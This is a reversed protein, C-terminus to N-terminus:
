NAAAKNAAKVANEWGKEATQQGSQVKTLEAEVATRVVGSKKGLYQPQLDEATKAFIVGTNQGSFFDSKFDLFSQDKWIAPQAPLNGVKQFIALAQEPATAWNIFDWAAQVNKGQKPITWFSGGWNGGDGPIDAVAWKGKTAPAQGQIYGQMWAPCALTAFKGNKFGANWEASWAALGASIGSAIVKTSQDWAVKPGGDMQLTESTDFYGVPQQGLVPNMINVASDVFFKGKEAKEMYKQGVTIFDDWSAGWESSLQDPATSLGAKEFLDTRYCMALGGVDTGLGIQTKGDASLSQAWKWKLFDNQRSAGNYPADLLNVFKDAQERFQVIFGEDIAAVDPAGSGAVLFKQLDQHQKNYDGANLVLTVNPHAAEYKPKLEKLGFDGWFNVKLTVPETSQTTKNGAATDPTDEDGGCAAFLLAGAAGIAAFRVWRIRSSTM